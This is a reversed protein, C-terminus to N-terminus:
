GSSGGAGGAVWGTDPGIFCIDDKRVGENPANTVTWQANLSCGFVAVTGMSLLIRSVMNM